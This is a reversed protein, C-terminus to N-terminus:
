DARLACYWTATGGASPATKYRQNWPAILTAVLWQNQPM